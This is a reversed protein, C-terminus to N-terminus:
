AVIKTTYPVKLNSETHFVAEKAKYSFVSTTHLAYTIRTHTHACTYLSKRIDRCRGIKEAQLVIKM